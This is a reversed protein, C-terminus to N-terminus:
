FYATFNNLAKDPGKLTSDATNKSLPNRRFSPDTGHDVDQPPFQSPRPSLLPSWQM